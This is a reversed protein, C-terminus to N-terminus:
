IINKWKKCNFIKIKIILINKNIFFKEIKRLKVMIIIGQWAIFIM